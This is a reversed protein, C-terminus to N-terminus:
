HALVMVQVPQNDGVTSRIKVGAKRLATIADGVIDTSEAFGFRKQEVADYFLSAVGSGASVLVLRRRHCITGADIVLSASSLHHYVQLTKGLIENGQELVDRTVQRRSLSHNTDGISLHPASRSIALIYDLSDQVGPREGSNLLVNLHGFLRCVKIDLM